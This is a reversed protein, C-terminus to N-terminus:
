ESISTLCEERRKQVLNNNALWCGGSVLVMAVLLPWTLPEAFVRTALLGALVPVLAMFAGMTSPGLLRVAQVYCYMQVITALVGQYFAQLGIDSLSAQLLRGPSILLYLPLYFLATVLALSIVAEAPTISWRRICVSFLSWFLAALLLWLQGAGPTGTAFVRSMVLVAIGASIVAVGTWHTVSHQEGNIAVSALIILLPMTGPLLVAAHSAPAGAFGQFACLAYGLGGLLGSILYRPRLFNFRRFFWWFPLLLLACVGYRIAIIDSFHLTSTAGERSVLIFGTWIAVAILAFGYGSGKGHNILQTM